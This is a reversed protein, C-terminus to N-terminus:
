LNENIYALLKQKQASGNKQLIQMFTEPKEIYKRYVDLQLTWFSSVGHFNILNNDDDTINFTLRSLNDVKVLTKINTNNYVINSNLRANNPIALIVDSSNSDSGTGLEACHILIRPTAMFNCVRPMTLIRSSSTITGSFGMVFDITSDELFSFEYTNNVVTFKSNVKDLSISFRNPLLARFDTMFEDANYNGEEFTYITQVTNELVVLTNNSSNIQFFSCPIVAYPISAEIYDISDDPVIFNPLDFSISSKYNPDQNLIRGASAKTSLHYHTQDLILNAM